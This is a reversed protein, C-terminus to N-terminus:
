KELKKAKKKAIKNEEIKSGDDFWSNFQLINDKLVAEIETHLKQMDKLCKTEGSTQIEKEASFNKSILAPIDM